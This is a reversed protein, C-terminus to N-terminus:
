QFWVKVYTNEQLNAAYKWFVKWQSCSQAAVETDAIATVSKRDDKHHAAYYAAVFTSLMIVPETQRKKQKYSM